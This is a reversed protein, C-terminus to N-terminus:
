SKVGWSGDHAVTLGTDEGVLPAEEEVPNAMVVAMNHTMTDRERIHPLM